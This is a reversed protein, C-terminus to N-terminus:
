RIDWEEGPISKSSAPVIWASPSHPNGLCFGSPCRKTSGFHWEPKWICISLIGQVNVLCIIFAPNALLLLVKCPSHPLPLPIPLCLWRPFLRWTERRVTVPVAHLLLCSLCLYPHSLLAHMREVAHVALWSTAGSIGGRTYESDM